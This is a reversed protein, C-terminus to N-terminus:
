LGVAYGSIATTPPLIDYVLAQPFIDYVLAEPLIDYVLAQPFIDYVLAQPFSDYVLAQPLIDYVLAQLKSDNSWTEAVPCRGDASLWQSVVRLETLSCVAM